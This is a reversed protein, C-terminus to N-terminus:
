VNSGHYLVNKKVFVFIVLGIKIYYYINETVKIMIYRYIEIYLLKVTVQSLQNGLSTDAISLHGSYLMDAISLNWQIKRALM